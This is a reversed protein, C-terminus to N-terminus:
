RARGKKFLLLEPNLQRLVQINFRDEHPHKGLDIVETDLAILQLLALGTWCLALDEATPPPSTCSNLHYSGLSSFGGHILASASTRWKAV